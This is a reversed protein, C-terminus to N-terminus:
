RLMQFLLLKMHGALIADVRSRWLKTEFAAIEMIEKTPPNKKFNEKTRQWGEYVQTIYQMSLDYPPICKLHMKQFTNYYYEKTVLHLTHKETEAWNDKLEEEHDEETLIFDTFVIKGKARLADSCNALIPKKYKMLHLKERSYILDYSMKPLNINELDFDLLKIYRAVDLKNNLAHCKELIQPNCEIGDVTMFHDNVLFRASKGLGVSLDLAKIKSHLSHSKFIVSEFSNDGPQRAGIGWMMQVVEFRQECWKDM